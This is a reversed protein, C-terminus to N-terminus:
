STEYIVLYPECRGLYPSINIQLTKKNNRVKSASGWVTDYILTTFIVLCVGQEMRKLILKMELKHFLEVVGGKRGNKAQGQVFGLAWSMLVQRTFKGM